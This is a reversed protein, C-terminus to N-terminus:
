QVQTDHALQFMNRAPYLIYENRFVIIEEYTFILLYKEFWYKHKDNYITENFQHLM